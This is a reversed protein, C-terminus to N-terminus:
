SNIKELKFANLKNEKYNTVKRASGQAVDM